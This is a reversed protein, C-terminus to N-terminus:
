EVPTATLHHVTNILFARSCSEEKFQLIKHIEEDIRLVLREHEKCFASMILSRAFHKTRKRHRINLDLMPLDYAMLSLMRPIRGYALGLKRKLASAYNVLLVPTSWLKSFGKVVNQQM